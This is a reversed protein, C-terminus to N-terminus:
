KTPHVAVNVTILKDSKSTLDVVIRIPLGLDAVHNVCAVTHNNVVQDCTGVVDGNTDHLTAVYVAGDDSSSIQLDSKGTPLQVKISKTQNADLNVLYSMEKQAAALAPITLLCAVLITSITRKM